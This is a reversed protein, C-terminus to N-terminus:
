FSYGIGIKVMPFIGLKGLKDNLKAEEKQLDAEVGPLSKLLPTADLTGSLKGIGAGIDLGFKLGPKNLETFGWGVGLYPMTSPYKIKALVREGFDVDYHNGGIDIGGALPDASMSGNPTKFLVGGTLRFPGSFPHYDGYLGSSGINLKGAFDLDSVTKNFDMSYRTSEARVAFNKGLQTGVGLGLGSTGGVGYVLLGGRTGDSSSFISQDGASAPACILAAIFGLAITYKM